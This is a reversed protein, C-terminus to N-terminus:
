FKPDLIDNFTWIWQFGESSAAFDIRSVIARRIRWRFGIGGGYHLHSVDVDRKLPVVKGADAFLAMDLMSFAHWRHEATLNVSHYDKFRYPTFGRLEDSGGLTPQLYFPVANGEKPYSLVASGGFALVRGGNFYPVYKQVAFETQRFAFQKLDIDWYERYRAVILGGSRPGTQSDRSDYYAFVGIRTYKTDAGFGPLSAPPFAEDIPIIDDEGSEATHAHFYGGTGGVRVRRTLAFSANFDSSFDDYRYSTRNAELSDNGQGFYDVHRSHEYRTYWRLFTRDSRLGNFDVDADFMYGGRTTARATGRIGLQERFLDSRRYGVGGSMGQGSRMGGFLFQIGNAGKGSDLGEGLGREALGNAIDVMANQREPWLEGVKDARESAIVAERTQPVASPQEQALAPTAAIFLLFAFRRVAGDFRAMVILDSLM